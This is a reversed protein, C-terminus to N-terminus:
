RVFLHMYRRGDPGVKSGAGAYRANDYICCSGWGAGVPWAACGAGTATTGTVFAFDNRTHGEIRNAARYGAARRAADALLPDLQYPPLGRRARLANVEDLETGVPPAAPVTAVAPVPPTGRGALMARVAEAQEASTCHYVGGDRPDPVDFTGAAPGSATQGDHAIPSLTPAPRPCNPCTQYAPAYAPRYAQASLPGAAALTLLLVGFRM